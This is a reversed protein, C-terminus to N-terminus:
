RSFNTDWPITTHLVTPALLYILFQQSIKFPKHISKHLTYLLLKLGTQSAQYTM